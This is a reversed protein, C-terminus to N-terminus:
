RKSLHNLKEVVVVINGSATHELTYLLGPGAFGDATAGRTSSALVRGARIDLLVLRTDLFGDVDEFYDSNLLERQKEQLEKGTLPAWEADAVWVLLWLYRGEASLSQVTPIPKRVLATQGLILYSDPFWEERPEVAQLLQGTPSYREVVFKHRPVVLLGADTVTLTRRADLGLASENLTAIHGRGFSALRSGHMDYSHLPGPGEDVGAFYLMGPGVALDYSGTRVKFHRVYRGEPSLVTVRQLRADHVLISDGAAVHISTISIFEGPGQGRKGSTGLLRGQPSYRAVVGPTSVPGLFYFGKSTRTAKTHPMPGVSDSDAGLRIIEKGHVQAGAMAPLLVLLSLAKFRMTDQPTDVHNIGDPADRSEIELRQWDPLEGLPQADAFEWGLFRTAALRRGGAVLM